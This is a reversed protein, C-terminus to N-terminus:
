PHQVATIPSYEWNSIPSGDIEYLCLAIREGKYEEGTEADTLAETITRRGEIFGFLAETPVDGEVTFGRGFRDIYQVTGEANVVGGHGASFPSATKYQDPILTVGMTDIYGYMGRYSVRCLGNAYFPTRTGWTPKLVVDGDPNVLGWLKNMRMWARHYVKDFPTIEDYINELIMEGDKDILGYKGKLKVPCAGESFVGADQYEGDIAFIGNENIFVWKKNLRVAAIGEGFDRADQYQPQIVIDGRLNIHGYQKGIAVVARGESFHRADDWQLGDALYGGDANIFGWKGGVCVPVYGEAYEGVKDFGEGLQKGTVTNILEVGTESKLAALGGSTWLVADYRMPAVLEGDRRLLGYHGKDPVPEGQAYRVSGEFVVAVPLLSAERGEAEPARSEDRFVREAWDFSPEIVINEDISMYGFKGGSYARHAAMADCLRVRYPADAFDNLAAYAARAGRIDGRLYSLRAACYDNLRSAERYEGLKRFSNTADIVSDEALMQLAEAYDEEVAADVDGSYPEDVGFLESWASGSDQAGEDTVLFDEAVCSSAILALAAIFCCLRVRIDPM